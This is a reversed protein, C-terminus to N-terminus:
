GGKRTVSKKSKHRDRRDKTPKTKQSLSKSEAVVEAEKANIRQKIERAEGRDPM